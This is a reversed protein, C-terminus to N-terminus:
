DIKVFSFAKMAQVMGFAGYGFDYESDTWVRFPSGTLQVDSNDLVFFTYHVGYFTAHVDVCLLVAAERLNTMYSEGVKPM